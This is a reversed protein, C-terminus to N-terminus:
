RQTAPSAAPDPPNQPLKHFLVVYWSAAAAAFAVVLALIAIRNSKRTVSVTEEHAKANFARDEERAIRNRHEVDQLLRMEAHDKPSRGPMWPIYEICDRESRAQDHAQRRDERLHSFDFARAACVPAEDYAPQHKDKPIYGERRYNEPAEVLEHTMRHRLGLFGCDVCKVPM